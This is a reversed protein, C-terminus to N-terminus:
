IRISRKWMIWRVQLDAPFPKTSYLIPMCLTLFALGQDITVQLDNKLNSLAMDADRIKQNRINTTTVNYFVVNTLVIPIFVSLIYMMLLKDRLKMVNLFKNM